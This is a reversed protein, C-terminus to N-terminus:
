VCLLSMSQGSQTHIYLVCCTRRRVSPQHYLSQSFYNIWYLRYGIINMKIWWMIKGTLRIDFTSDLIRCAVASDSKNFESPHWGEGRPPHWGAGKKSTRGRKDLIRQLTLWLFQKREPTPTVGQLTDGPATRGAEGLSAVSLLTKLKSSAQINDDVLSQTETRDTASQNWM